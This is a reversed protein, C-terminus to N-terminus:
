EEKQKPKGRLYCKSIKTDLTWNEIMHKKEIWCVPSSHEGSIYRDYYEIPTQNRYEAEFKYDIFSLKSPTFTKNRSYELMIHRADNIVMEYSDDYLLFAMDIVADHINDCILRASYNFVISIQYLQTQFDKFINLAIYRKDKTYKDLTHGKAINESFPLFCLNEITCNFGDDDMHEVVFGNDIMERYVEETYWKRAIFSHLTGLSSQLYGKNESWTVRQLDYAYDERLTATAIRPWGDRYISIHNGNPTFLNKSM